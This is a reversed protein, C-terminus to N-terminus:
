CFVPSALEPAPLPGSYGGTRECADSWVDAMWEDNQYSSPFAGKCSLYCRYLRRAVKLVRDFTDELGPLTNSGPYVPIAFTFCVMRLGRFILKTKAETQCLRRHHYHSVRYSLDFAFPLRPSDTHM